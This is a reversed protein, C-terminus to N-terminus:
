GKPLPTKCKIKLVGQEYFTFLVPALFPLMVFYFANQLFFQSHAAHKFYETSINKSFSIYFAVDPHYRLTATRYIPRM